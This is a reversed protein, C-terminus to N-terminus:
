AMKGEWSSGEVNRGLEAQIATLELVAWCRPLQSMEGCFCREGLPGWRQLILALSRPM